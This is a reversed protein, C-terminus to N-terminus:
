PLPCWSITKLGGTEWTGRCLDAEQSSAPPRGAHSSVSVAAEVGERHVVEVFDQFLVGHHASGEFCNGHISQVAYTLLLAPPWPETTPLM